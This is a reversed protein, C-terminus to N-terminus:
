DGRRLYIQAVLDMSVREGRRLSFRIRDRHNATHFDGRGWAGVLRESVVAPEDFPFPASSALEFAGACSEMAEAGAQRLEWSEYYAPEEIAYEPQQAALYLFAAGLDAPPDAAEALVVVALLQDCMDVMPALQAVAEERHVSFLRREANGLGAEPTRRSLEHRHLWAEFLYTLQFGSVHLSYPPLGLLGVVGPGGPQPPGLPELLARQVILGTIREVEPEYPRRTPPHSWVTPFSFLLPVRSDTGWIIDFRDLLRVAYWGTPLSTIPFTLQAYQVLCLGFLAASLSRRLLRGRIRALGAVAVIGLPAYIPVLYRLNKTMVVSFVLVGSLVTLVLLRLAHLRQREGPQDSVRLGLLPRLCLLLTALVALMVPLSADRLLLHPYFVQHFLQLPGGFSPAVNKWDAAHHGLLAAMERLNGWWWISSILGALALAACLGVLSRGLLTWDRDRRWRLGLEAFAYVLPLALFLMVQGKVLFGLGLVVGMGVLALPRRYRDSHLSFALFCSVAVAVPFDYTFNRGFGSVGPLLSVLAAALLGTSRGGCARGCAYSSLLLAMLLLSMLYLPHRPGAGTHHFLLGSCLSFFPSNHHPKHQLSLLTTGAEWLSSSEHLISDVLQYHGMEMTMHLVSEPGLFSSDASIWWLNLGAQLACLLVLLLATLGRGPWGGAGSSAPTPANPSGNVM